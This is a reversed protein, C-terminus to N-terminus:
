VEQLYGEPREHTFIRLIPIIIPTIFATYTVSKLVNDALDVYCVVYIIMSHLLHYQFTYFVVLVILVFTNTLHITYKLKLMIYSLTTFLLSHLGFPDSTMSDKLLGILWAQIVISRENNNYVIVYVCLIILFDPREDTFGLFPCIVIGTFLFLIGFILTIYLKM